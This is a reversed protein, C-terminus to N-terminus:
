QPFRYFTNFKQMIYELRVCCCVKYLLRVVRKLVAVSDDLLHEFQTIEQLGKDYFLVDTLM